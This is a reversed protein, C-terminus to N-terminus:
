IGKWLGNFMFFVCFFVFYSFSIYQCAANHSLLSHACLNCLLLLTSLLQEITVYIFDTVNM